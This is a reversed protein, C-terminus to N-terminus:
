ERSLRQIDPRMVKKTLRIAKKLKARGRARCLQPLEFQLQEPTRQGTPLLGITVLRATSVAQEFLVQM